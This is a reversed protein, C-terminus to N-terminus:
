VLGVTQAQKNRRPVAGCNQSRPGFHHRNIEGRNPAVIKAAPVLMTYRTSSLRVGVAVCLCWGALACVDGWLPWGRRRVVVGVVCSRLLCRVAAGPRVGPLGWISTWRAWLYCRVSDARGASQVGFLYCCLLATVRLDMACGVRCELGATGIPRGTRGSPRMAAATAASPWFM